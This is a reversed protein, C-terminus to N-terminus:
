FNAHRNPVQRHPKMQLPSGYEIRHANEALATALALQKKNEWLVTREDERLFPACNSLVTYVYLDFYDTAVWSTDAAQYDPIVARYVLSLDGPTDTSIPGVLRLIWQQNRPADALASINDIAYYPLFYANNDRARLNYIDTLTASQMIKTTTRFYTDTMNNTLSVVHRYDDPLPHDISTPQINATQQRRLLDLSRDLENNAMCIINDMDAVLDADNQKWLFRVIYDKFEQYTLNAM